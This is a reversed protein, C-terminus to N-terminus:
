RHNCHGQQELVKSKLSKWLRCWNGNAHMIALDDAYQKGKQDSTITTSLDSIYINFLPHWLCVRASATRLANYVARNAMEPPLPAAAIAL